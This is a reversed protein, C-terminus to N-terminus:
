AQVNQLQEAENKIAVAKKYAKIRINFALFRPYPVGSEWDQLRNLSNGIPRPLLKLRDGVALIWNIFPMFLGCFRVDEIKFRDNFLQNIENISLHKHGVEIPTNPTYDSIRMYTKYIAPFRRKFDLHDAWAFLGEYPATFIFLGGEKLVRWAEDIVFQKNEDGVHEIVESLIVVDFMNSEFPLKAATQYILKLSPYTQEAQALAAQDVDIGWLENAKGDLSGLAWGYSCGIDLIKDVPEQVLESVYSVRGGGSKKLWSWFAVM